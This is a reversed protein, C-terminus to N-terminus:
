KQSIEKLFAMLKQHLPDGETRAFWQTNYHNGGPASVLTSQNGADLWAQHMVASQRAFEETEDDGFVIFAPPLDRKVHYFPSWAKADKVSTVYQRSNSSHHAMELDYLGSFGFCGLINQPDLSTETWDNVMAMMALHAGASNGSVILRTPDIGLKAHNDSVWNVALRAHDIIQDMSFLPLFGYTAAIFNYGAPCFAEAWFNAFFKDSLRWSGGHFFIITPAKDAGLPTPFFDLRHRDAPGYM